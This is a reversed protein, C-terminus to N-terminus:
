FIFFLVINLYFVSLSLSLSFFHFMAFPEIIRVLSVMKEAEEVIQDFWSPSKQKPVMVPEAQKKVIDAYSITIAKHGDM